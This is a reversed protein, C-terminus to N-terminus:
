LVGTPIAAASSAFFTLAEAGDLPRGVPMFGFAAAALFGATPALDLTVM